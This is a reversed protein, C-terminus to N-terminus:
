GNIVQDIAEAESKVAALISQISTSESNLIKVKPGDIKKLGNNHELM